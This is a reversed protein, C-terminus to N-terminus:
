RSEDKRGRGREKSWRTVWKDEGCSKCQGKDNKTMRGRNKAAMCITTAMGSKGTGQVSVSWRRVIDEIDMAGGRRSCWSCYGGARSRSSGEGEGGARVKM